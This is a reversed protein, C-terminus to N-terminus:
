RQGAELQQHNEGKQGIQTFRPLHNRSTGNKQFVKMKKKGFPRLDEIKPQESLKPVDFAGFVGIRGLFNVLPFPQQGKGHDQQALAQHDGQQRAKQRAQGAFDDGPCM